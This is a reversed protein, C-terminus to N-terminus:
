SNKLKKFMRSFLSSRRVRPQQKGYLQDDIMQKAMHNAVYITGLDLNM